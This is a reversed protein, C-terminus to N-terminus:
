KPVEPADALASGWADGAKFGSFWRVYAEATIAGWLANWDAPRDQPRAAFRDFAAGFAKAEVIGLKGLERMSVLDSMSGAGGMAAFLEIFADDPRAKDMRYRVSDPVLGEMSERLLGRERAGVFVDASSVRGVFQVFEDDLYPFSIPLGCGLEWRSAHERMAMLLESSALTEVRERQTLIPARGPYTRREALFSRLRPGAWPLEHRRAKERNRQAWRLRVDLASAPLLQRLLPGGVMRRWMQPRTERITKFRGLCAVARIPHSLLFDGFVAADADFLLESGGGELIREVGAIRARDTAAFMTTAPGIAHASGDIVRDRWGHPAGEAPAIRIPEVSLHRCLAQLHPRDDGAGGFDFALPIADASGNRRANDVTVALLNGSDVGGGTMVAVRRAGACQRVVARRFQERVASALEPGSLQLEPGWRLPGSQTRIGGDGDVEVVTNARVRKFGLFPLPRGLLLLQPDFLAFLHDLNLQADTRSLIALPLLRSSAITAAGVRLWFLPRGAFRGRALRLGRETRAVLAFDGRLEAGRRPLDGVVTGVYAYEGGFVSPVASVPGSWRAIAVGRRISCSLTNAALGNAIRDVIRAARGDDPAVVGVIM